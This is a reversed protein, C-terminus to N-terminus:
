TWLTLIAGMLLLSVLYYSATIFWLKWSRQHGTLTYNVTVPAVFGLWNMVAAIIGAKLGTIGTYASMFVIAGALVYAMLLAGVTMILYMKTIAGQAPKQMDAPFGMLRMWPKGFFPGFWLGGLIMTVVASVIVALLNIPVM